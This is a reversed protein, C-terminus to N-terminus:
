RKRAVTLGDGLPLMSMTVRKDAHIMTNVHRISNTDKDHNDADAVKGSWLVNDVLVIGGQRLLNIAKEYYAPYNNKDADIFIFDFTGAEHQELQTLTDLAPGIRLDIKYAVGADQWFKQAIMPAEQSIDCSIVKGDEPMAAAVVLASYGTFTGIDISKKAGTIEVLLAMFQGQEPSIQMRAGTMQSTVARLEQLVSSERLSTKLLYQYLDATLNLTAVSM